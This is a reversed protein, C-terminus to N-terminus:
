IMYIEIYFRTLRQSGEGEQLGGRSGVDLVLHYM